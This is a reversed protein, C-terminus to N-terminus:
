LAFLKKSNTMSHTPAAIVSAVYAQMSIASSALPVGSWKSSLVVVGTANIGLKLRGQNGERWRDQFMELWKQAQLISHQLQPTGLRREMGIAAGRGKIGSGSETALRDGDM